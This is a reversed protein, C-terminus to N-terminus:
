HQLFFQLKGVAVGWLLVYGIFAMVLLAKRRRSRFKAVRLLAEHIRNVAIGLLLVSGVGLVFALGFWQTTILVLLGFLCSFVLTAFVVVIDRNVRDDDETPSGPKDPAAASRDVLWDCWGARLCCAGIFLTVVASLLAAVVSIAVVNM